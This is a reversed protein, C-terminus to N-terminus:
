GLSLLADKFKNLDSENKFKITTYGFMNSISWAKGESIEEHYSCEGFMSVCLNFIESHRHYYSRDLRISFM